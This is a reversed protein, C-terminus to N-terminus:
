KDSFLNNAFNLSIKFVLFFVISNILLYLAGDWGQTFITIITLIGDMILFFTPPDVKRFKAIIPILSSYSGFTYGNALVISIGISAFVGQLIMLLISQIAGINEVQNGMFGVSWDIFFSLFLYGFVGRLGATKGAVFFNVLLIISNIIILFMGVSIGFLYNFTLAYGPMGGSILEFKWSFYNISLGLIIMGIISWTLKKIEPLYKQM